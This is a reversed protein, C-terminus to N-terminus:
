DWKSKIMDVIFNNSKDWKGLNYSIYTSRDPFFIKVMLFGLESEGIEEIFGKRGKIEIPPYDFKRRVEM